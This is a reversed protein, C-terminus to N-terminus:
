YYKKKTFFRLHTSDLIGHKKYNFKGILLMFKITFNAINPTSIVIKGKHHIIRRLQVLFERPSSIHEIFDSM